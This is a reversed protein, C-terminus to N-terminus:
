TSLCNPHIGIDFSPSPDKLIAQVMHQILSPINEKFRCTVLPPQYTTHSLAAPTPDTKDSPQHSLLTQQDTTDSVEKTEKSGLYHVYKTSYREAYGVQFSEGKVLRSGVKDPHNKDFHRKVEQRNRM